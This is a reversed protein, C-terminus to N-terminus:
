HSYKLCCTTIITFYMGFDGELAKFLLNEELSQNADDVIFDQSAVDVKFELKQPEILNEIDEHNQVKSPLISISCNQSKSKEKELLYKESEEQYYNKVPLKFLPNKIVDFSSSLNLECSASEKDCDEELFKKILDEPTLKRKTFNYKEHNQRMHHRLLFEQKSKFNCEPCCYYLFQSLDALDWANKKIRLRNLKDKSDRDDNLCVVTVSM